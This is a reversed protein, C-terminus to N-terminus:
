FYIIIYNAKYLFFYHLKMKLKIYIFFFNLLPFRINLKVGLRHPCKDNFKIESGSLCFTESRAPDLDTNPDPDV